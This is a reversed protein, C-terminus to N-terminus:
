QPWWVSRRTPTQPGPGTVSATSPGKLTSASVMLVCLSTMANTWMQPLVHSWLVVVRIQWWVNVFGLMCCLKLEKKQPAMKHQTGSRKGICELLNGDYYFGQQCYCEYGPMTNECRGKKCIEEAFLSCEDIDAFFLCFSLSSNYAHALIM